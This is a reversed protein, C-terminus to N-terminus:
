INVQIHCYTLARWFFGGRVEFAMGIHAHKGMRQKKSHPGIERMAIQYLLHHHKELYLIM